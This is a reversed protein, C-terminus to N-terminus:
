RNYNTLIELFSSPWDDSLGITVDLLKRCGRTSTPWDSLASCPYKTSSFFTKKNKFILKANALKMAPMPPLQVDSTMDNPQVRFGFTSHITQARPINTAAAGTPTCVVVGNCMAEALQQLALITHTKGVGIDVTCYSRNPTPNQVVPKLKCTSLCATM